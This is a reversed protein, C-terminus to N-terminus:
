WDKKISSAKLDGAGGNCNIDRDANEAHGEYEVSLQVVLYGQVLLASRQGCDRKFEGCGLPLGETHRTRWRVGNRCMEAAGAVRDQSRICDADGVESMAPHVVAKWSALLPSCTTQFRALLQICPTACM